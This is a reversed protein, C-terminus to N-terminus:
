GLAPWMINVAVSCSQGRQGYHTLCLVRIWVSHFCLGTRSQFTLRCGIFWGLQVHLPLCHAMLLLRWPNLCIDSSCVGYLTFNFSIVMHSLCSFNFEFFKVMWSVVWWKWMQSSIMLILHYKMMLRQLCFWFFTVVRVLRRRIWFKCRLYATCWCGEIRWQMESGMNLQRCRKWVANWWILGHSKTRMCDHEAYHCKLWHCVAYM